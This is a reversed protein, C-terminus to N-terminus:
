VVSLINIKFHTFTFFISCTIEDKGLFSHLYLFTNISVNSGSGIVSPVSFFLQLTTTTSKIDSSSSSTLPLHVIIIMLRYGNMVLRHYDNDIPTQSVTAVRSKANRSCWTTQMVKITNEIFLIHDCLLYPCNNIIDKEWYLYVLILIYM